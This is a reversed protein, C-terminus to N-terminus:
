YLTLFSGGSFRAAEEPSALLAAVTYSRGKAQLLEGKDIAGGADLKADAPSVVASPDPDIPRAGAVLRRTFFDLLTPYEAIPKEAEALDVGYRAAFRRITMASRLRAFRPVARSLPKKPVLRLAGIFLRGRLTAM